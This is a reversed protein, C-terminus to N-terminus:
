GSLNVFGLRFAEPEVEDRCNLLGVVAKQLEWCRARLEAASESTKENWLKWITEQIADLRLADVDDRDHVKV